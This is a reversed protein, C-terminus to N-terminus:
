YRKDFAMLLMTDAYPPESISPHSRDTLDRGSPGNKLIIDPISYYYHM